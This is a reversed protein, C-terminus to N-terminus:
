NSIKLSLTLYGAYKVITIFLALFVGVKQVGIDTLLLNQEGRGNIFNIQLTLTITLYLFYYSHILSM